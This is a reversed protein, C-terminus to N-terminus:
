ATQLQHSSDALLVLIDRKDDFTRLAVVTLLSLGIAEKEDVLVGLSHTHFELMYQLFMHSKAVEYEAVRLRMLLYQTDVTQLLQLVIDELDGVVGHKIMDAAVM